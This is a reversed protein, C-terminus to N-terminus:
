ENCLLGEGSSCSLFNSCVEAEWLCGKDECFRLGDCACRWGSDLSNITKIEITTFNLLSVISHIQQMLSIYCTLKVEIWQPGVQDTKGDVTTKLDENCDDM